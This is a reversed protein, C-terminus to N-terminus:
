QASARRRRQARGHGPSRLAAAPQDREDHESERGASRQEGRIRPLAGVSDVSRRAKSSIARASRESASAFPRTSGSSGDANASTSPPKAGVRRRAGRADRQAEGDVANAARRQRGDSPVDGAPQKDGDAACQRDRPSAFPAGSATHPQRGFQVAGRAIEVVAHRIALPRQLHPSGREDPARLAAREDLDQRASPQISSRMAAARAAALRAMASATPWHLARDAAITVAMTMPSRAPSSSSTCRRQLLGARVVHMAIEPPLM